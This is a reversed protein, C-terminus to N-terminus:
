KLGKQSNKVYTYIFIPSEVSDNGNSEVYKIAIKLTDIKDFEVKTPESIITVEGTDSETTKGNDIALYGQNTTSIEELKAKLLSHLDINFYNLQQDLIKSDKNKLIQPGNITALKRWTTYEEQTEIENTLKDLSSSTTNTTGTSELDTDVTFSYYVTLSKTTFPEDTEANKISGLPKYGPLKTNKYFKPTISIVPPVPPDDNMAPKKFQASGLINYSDDSFQVYDIQILAFAMEKVRKATLNTKEEETLADMSELIVRFGHNKYQSTYNFDAIWLEDTVTDTYQITQVNVKQFPNGQEYERTGHIKCSILFKHNQYLHYYESFTVSLGFIKYVHTKPALPLEM